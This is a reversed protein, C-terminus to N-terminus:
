EYKSFVAHKDGSHVRRPNPMTITVRAHGGNKLDVVESSNPLDTLLSALSGALNRVSSTSQPSTMLIKLSVLIRSGIMESKAGPMSLLEHM